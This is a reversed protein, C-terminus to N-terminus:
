ASGDGWLDTFPIGLFNNPSAVAQHVACYQKKHPAPLQRAGIVPLCYIRLSLLWGM